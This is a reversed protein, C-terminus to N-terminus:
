RMRDVRKLYTKAYAVLRGDTPHDVALKFISDRVLHEHGASADGKMLPDRLLFHATGAGERNRQRGASSATRVVNPVGSQSTHGRLISPFIRSRPSREHSLVDCFLISGGLVRACARFQSPIEQAFGTCARASGSGAASLVRYDSPKIGLRELSDHLQDREM